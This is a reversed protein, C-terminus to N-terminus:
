TRGSKTSESTQPPAQGQTSSFRELDKQGATLFDLSAFVIKKNNSNKFNEKIKIELPRGEFKICVNLYM